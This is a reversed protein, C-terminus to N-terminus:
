TLVAKQQRWEEGHIPGPGDQWGVVVLELGLGLGWGLGLVLGLGKGKWTCNHHGCQRHLFSELQVNLKCDLIDYTDCKLIVSDIHVLFSYCHHM